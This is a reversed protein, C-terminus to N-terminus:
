PQKAAAGAGGVPHLFLVFRTKADVQNADISARKLSIEELAAFPLDLLVQQSFAQIAGFSGKVPLVMHYRRFGGANDNALRYEGVTLSVGHKKAAAFVKGLYGELDEGRGLLKEFAARRDANTSPRLQGQGAKQAALAARLQATGRATSQAQWAWAAAAAVCLALAVLRLAHGRAVLLEIPLLLRNM